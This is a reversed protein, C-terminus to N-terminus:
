VNFRRMQDSKSNFVFFFNVKEFNPLVEQAYSSLDMAFGRRNIKIQLFHLDCGIIFAFYFLVFKSFIHPRFQFM